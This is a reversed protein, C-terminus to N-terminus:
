RTVQVVRFMGSEMHYLIHCHFAWRGIEKATVVFSLREAPQVNMTHKLPNRDCAGVDLEVFMGHLHIPHAMMTDNILVFRIREGYRLVIDPTDHRFQEGNFSWMYREMNGTLHLEITRTVAPEPPGTSARRLQSYTLVRWGDEGLGVGPEHIRSRAVEAVMANGAGHEDYNHRAVKELNLRCAKAGDVKPQETPAQAGHTMSGQKMDGHDMGKHKMNGHDMGGHDMGMDAMTLLPRPRRKPVAAHATNNLSLTGRAHGSRDMAEAFITYADRKPEVLVDYTEAIAIRFEDCNTPEVPQGDAEIVQMPLGPIRVDFYTAASANIFRLRVREGPQFIARWDEDPCLGNMLYTYTAGTVDSIDSADMRMQGWSLRDSVANWFGGMREAEDGLNALTRRQFNYYGGYRKLNALVEHPDEFTWDSLVVTYERQYGYDSTMKPDIVLPGYIGTQEQLGSHSHYWYTGSQQVPFRYEFTEHPKIGAFSIGPVGDMSPPLILGHWHVSSDEDMANHVRLHVDQGEKLRIEPGPIGGNVTTARAVQGAVRVHTEAIRLDITQGQAVTLSRRAPAVRLPGGCGTVFAGLAASASATLGGRLFERRKAM